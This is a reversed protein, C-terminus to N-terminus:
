EREQEKRVSYSTHFSMIYYFRRGCKPCYEEYETGEEEYVDPVYEWGCHPCELNSVSDCKHEKFEYSTFQCLIDEFVEFTYIQAVVVKFSSDITLVLLEEPKAQDIVVQADKDVHTFNVSRFEDKRLLIVQKLNLKILGM